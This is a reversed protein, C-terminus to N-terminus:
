EFLTWGEGVLQIFANRDPRSVLFDHHPWRHPTDCTSQIAFSRMHACSLGVRTELRFANNVGISCLIRRGSRDRSPLAQIRGDRLMRIGERGLDELLPPRMLAQEGFYEFAMDLHMTLRVAARSADHLEARLFKIRFARDHVYRSNRAVARDYAPKPNVLQIERELQVLARDMMEPSEKPCLAKTGHIEEQIDERDQFSMQHLQQALLSDVAKPDVIGFEGVGAM